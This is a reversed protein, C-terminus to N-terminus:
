IDLIAIAKCWNYGNYNGEEVLVDEFTLPIGNIDCFNKVGKGHRNIESDLVKVYDKVTETEDRVIIIMSEKM